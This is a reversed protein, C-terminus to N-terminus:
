LSRNENEKVNTVIDTLYNMVGLTEAVSGLYWACADSTAGKENRRARDLENYIVQAIRKKDKATM